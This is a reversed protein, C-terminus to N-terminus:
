RHVALVFAVPGRTEPPAVGALALKLAEEGSASQVFLLSQGQANFSVQVLVRGSGEPVNAEIADLMAVIYPDFSSKTTRAQFVQEDTFLRLRVPAEKSVEPMTFQPNEMLNDSLIDPEAQSLPLQGLAELTANLEAPESPLQFAFLIEEPKLFVWRGAPAEVTLLPGELDFPYLAWLYTIEEVNARRVTFDGKVKSRLGRTVAERAAPEELTQGIGRLSGALRRVNFDLKVTSASEFAPDERLWDWIFPDVTMTDGPLTQSSGPALAKELAEALAM